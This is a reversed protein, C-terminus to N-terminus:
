YVLACIMMALSTMLYPIINLGSPFPCGSSAQNDWVAMVRTPGGTGGGIKMPLVILKTGKAPLKDTNAVMELGWLGAGLLVQHAMHAKNRPTDLSASDVGVGVVKPRKTTLWRAGEESWGPFHETKNEGEGAFGLFKNRDSWYKGWGSHMLVVAGDPIRGNQKEWEILDSADLTADLKEAAKKSIDVVVCPAMLQFLFPSTM